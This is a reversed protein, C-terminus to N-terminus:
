NVVGLDAEAATEAPKAEKSLPLHSWDWDMGEPANMDFKVLEDQTMTSGDAQPIPITLRTFGQQAEDLMAQATAQLSQMIAHLRQDDTMSDPLDLSLRFRKM